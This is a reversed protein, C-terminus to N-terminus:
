LVRRASKQERLAKPKTGIAAILREREAERFLIGLREAINRKPHQNQMEKGLVEIERELSPWIAQLCKMSKKGQVKSQKDLELVLGLWKRKASNTTHELSAGSDVMLTLGRVMAKRTTHVWDELKLRDWAYLVNLYHETEKATFGPLGRQKPRKHAEKADKELILWDEETKEIAGMLEFSTKFVPVLQRMYVTSAGNTHSAYPLQHSTISTVVHERKEQPSEFIPLATDWEARENETLEYAQPVDFPVSQGLEKAIRKWAQRVDVELFDQITVMSAFAYPNLQSYVNCYSLIMGDETVSPLWEIKEEELKAIFNQKLFRYARDVPLEGLRHDTKVKMDEYTISMLDRLWNRVSSRENIFVPDQNINVYSLM